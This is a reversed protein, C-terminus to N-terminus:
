PRPAAAEPEAPADEAARCSQGACRYLAGLREEYHDLTAGDPPPYATDASGLANHLQYPDQRLDYYEKDGNQHRTYVKVGESDKMRLM